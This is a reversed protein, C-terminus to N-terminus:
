TKSGGMPDDMDTRIASAIVQQLVHLTQRAAQAPTHKALVAKRGAQGLKRRVSEDQLLQCLTEALQDPDNPAVLRGGGTAAVLEPFIGHAPQVVPLGAAMAELVYLGKPDPYVTPVSLVDIKHLFDAKEQRDVTGYFHVADSLRAQRLKALQRKVYPKHRKGLWGAISLSTSAMEPRKKLSLFADVLVHLGKEPALRALYGIRYGGTAERGPQVVRTSQNPTSSPEQPDVPDIGLPVQHIKDSPIGLYEAVFRAYYRSHVLFGDIYPILRRLQHMARDRYPQPLANLFVDDGQLIAVMPARVRKKLEPVCGGILLNSLIIVDPRPPVQLWRSLRDIEKRMPGQEGHLMSITLPGLRSPDSDVGRAALWQLLSRHDCLRTFWTSVHHMLPIRHRLYVSIGGLFVHDLTVQPGDTRIPMYLPILQVDIGLGIFAQALRNDHMCSGCYMGGAGATLYAIKLPPTAAM